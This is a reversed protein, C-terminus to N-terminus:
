LLDGQAELFFRSDFTNQKFSVSVVLISRIVKHYEGNKSMQLNIEETKRIALNPDLKRGSSVSNKEPTVIAPSRQGQVGQTSSTVDPSGSDRRRWRKLPMSQHHFKALKFHQLHPM